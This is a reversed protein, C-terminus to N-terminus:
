HQWEIHADTSTERPGHWPPAAVYRNRELFNKRKEEDTMKTKSQGDSGPKHDDDEEDSTMDDQSHASPLSPASPATKTKKSAPAKAPADEAKRRGNTAASGRKGKGRTNPKTSESEESMNSIAESVGRISPPPHVGNGNMQPSTNTQNAPAPVPHAHVPQNGGVPYQTQPPANRGQAGQALMFLGNAADNDHPDFAGPAPKTEAKVIAGNTEQPQSTVASPNIPKDRNAKAAAASM